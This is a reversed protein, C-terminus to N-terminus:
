KITYGLVKLQEISLEQGNINIPQNYYIYGIIQSQNYIIHTPTPKRNM